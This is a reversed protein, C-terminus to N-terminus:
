DISIHGNDEQKLTITEDAVESDSYEESSATSEEYESSTENENENALHTKVRNLLSTNVVVFSQLLDPRDKLIECIEQYMDLLEEYEIVESEVSM